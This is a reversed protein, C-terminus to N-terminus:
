RIVIKETKSGQRKIYFGPALGETSDGAKVGNINYIEVPADLDNDAIVKEIGSFEKEKINVFNKWPNTTMANQVGGTAIYLTADTYTDSSFININGAIPNTTGYYVEKLGSCGYFAYGGIATVTNSITVSILGVCYQFAGSGIATVTNPITVSTLGVCAAFACGGIATVTNPILYRGFRGGPFRILETLNKNFLVGNWSAYAPSKADVEISTLGYCCWFADEGIATVTNPITVSTLGTCGNFANEGIVTVTNPILYSGSRGGPFLILETM